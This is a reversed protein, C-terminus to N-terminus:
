LESEIRLCARVTEQLAGIFGILATAPGNGCYVTFGNLRMCLTEEDLDSAEWPVGLADQQLWELLTQRTDLARSYRRDISPGALKWDDYNTHM